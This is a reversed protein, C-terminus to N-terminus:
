NLKKFTEDIEVMRMRFETDPNPVVEIAASSPTKKYQSEVPTNFPVDTGIELEKDKDASPQKIIQYYSSRRNPDDHTIRQSDTMHTKFVIHFRTYKGVKSEVRIISGMLMCYDVTSSLGLGSPLVTDKKTSVGVKFIDNIVKTPIGKGNDEVYLTDEGNGYIKVTL